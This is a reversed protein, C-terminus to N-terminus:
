VIGLWNIIGYIMIAIFATNVDADAMPITGIAFLLLGTIIAYHAKHPGRSVVVVVGSPLLVSGADLPTMGQVLQGFVPVAYAMAFNGLIHLRGGDGLRIRSEFLSMEM